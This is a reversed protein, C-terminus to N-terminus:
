KSHSWNGNWASPFVYAVHSATTFFLCMYKSYTCIIAVLWKYIAFLDWGYNGLLIFITFFATAAKVWYDNKQYM